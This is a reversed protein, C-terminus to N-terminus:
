YKGASEDCIALFQTLEERFVRSAGKEGKEREILHKWTLSKVSDERQFSNVGQRMDVLHSITTRRGTERPSIAPRSTRTGHIIKM